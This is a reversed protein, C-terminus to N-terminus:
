DRGFAAARAILREAQVLHPRDIMKGDLGITGADPDAAFADVIRHAHGLAAESPRYAANIVAVQAPHIALRGTFGEAASRESDAKLGDLDRFDSYLTDIAQVNAAHAALLALSRVMGFAEHFRGDDWRNGSSGIAAGLDEAGWTIGTLRSHTKQAYEGLAFVSAPTETAVPLIGIESGGGRRQILDSLRKIDDAGGCKPLMIGAPAHGIVRALDDEILNSDLPNVRVWLAPGSHRNALYDATLKRAAPKSAPAVADELDIIVADAGSDAIKGLKKESDGPVFLWSRPETSTRPNM